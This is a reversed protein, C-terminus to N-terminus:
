NKRRKVILYDHFIRVVQDADEEKVVITENLRSSGASIMEIEINEKELAGYTLSSVIPMHGIPKGIVSVTAYKNKVTVMAFEELLKALKTTDYKGDITLSISVESTSIFDVSIALKDFISFIKHLYGTVNFMGPDYINIVKIGKKSVIATTGKKNIENKVITTGKDSISFTNLVKVPIEKKIAPLITKPHLVKAGLVALEAAAQYSVVEITKATPVVRPDASMIGNVDTWIQIESSNLCYGIISASYDSGGRGLTTIKGSVTSGIFGTVVPVIQKRILPVLVKLTNLKTKNQIFEASGFNNDTVICKSANIQESSIGEKSLVDCIIYSSMIEGFSLVVDKNSKSLSKKMVIKKINALNSDVYLFLKKQSKKDKWISIILDRHVKRIIQINKNVSKKDAIEVLLNTIKSLASVVVVPNNSKEKKVIQVITDINKKSSVSTGGFKIVVTKM